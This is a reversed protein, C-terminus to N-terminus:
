QLTRYMIHHPAYAGDPLRFGDPITGVIRFGLSRWLRIANVNTGVVTNFQMARYGLGAALGLSAEGMQRGLGIGRVDARVAFSANAVHAGPGPINPRIVFMGVVADDLEAVYGEGLGLPCWYRWLAEDDITPEYAYTDGSRVLERAIHLVADRDAEAAGRVAVRSRHGERRASPSAAADLRRGIRKDLDESDLQAEITTVAALADSGATADILEDIEDSITGWLRQFEPLRSLGEPSLRLVRRRGDGPDKAAVVLGAAEMRRAMEIIAPHSVRLAAAAETVSVTGHQDLFLILAHWNPELPLDLAGYLRRGSEQMRDALRRLRYTFGLAGLSSLYDALDLLIRYTTVYTRVHYRRRTEAAWVM